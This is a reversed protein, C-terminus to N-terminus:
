PPRNGVYFENPKDTDPCKITTMREQAGNASAVAILLVALCALPIAIAKMIAKM